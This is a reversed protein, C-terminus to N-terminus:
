GIKKEMDIAKWGNPRIVTGVESFGCKKYCQYAAANFDFVCLKIRKLRLEEKCYELFTELTQTGLGQGVLAPDLVFRGIYATETEKERTIIEITGIMRGDLNAEYIEAGESLRNEIQGETLPYEYGRGAWQTLFDANKDECWSVINGINDAKLKQIEMM